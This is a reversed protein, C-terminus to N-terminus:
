PYHHAHHPHCLMRVVEHNIHQASGLPDYTSSAVLLKHGLVQHAFLPRGFSTSFPSSCLCMRLTFDRSSSAEAERDQAGLALGEKNLCLINIMATFLVAWYTFAHQVRNRPGCASLAALQTHVIQYRQPLWAGPPPACTTSPVACVRQTNAPWQDCVQGYEPAATSRTDHVSMVTDPIQHLSAWGHKQTKSCIGALRDMCGHSHHIFSTFQAPAVSTTGRAMGLVFGRWPAVSTTM